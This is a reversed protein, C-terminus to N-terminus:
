SHDVQIQLEPNEELFDILDNNLELGKNQTYLLSQLKSTKDMLHIRFKAKGPFSKLNQYLFNVIKNNINKPHSHLVIKKTLNKKMNEALMVSQVQLQFEDSNYRKRITASVMVISDRQL